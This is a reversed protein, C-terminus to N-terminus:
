RASRMEYQIPYTQDFRHKPNEVADLCIDSGYRLRTAIGAITKNKKRLM